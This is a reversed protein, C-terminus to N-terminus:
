GVGGGEKYVVGDWTCWGRYRGGGGTGVGVGQVGGM